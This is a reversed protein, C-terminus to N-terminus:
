RDALESLETAWRVVESGDRHRSLMELLQRDSFQNRAEVPTLSDKDEALSDIALSPWQCSKPDQDLLRHFEAKVRDYVADDVPRRYTARLGNQFRMGEMFAACVCVESVAGRVLPPAQYGHLLPELVVRCLQRIPVPGQVAKAFLFKARIVDAPDDERFAKRAQLYSNAAVLLLTMRNICNLMQHRASRRLFPGM